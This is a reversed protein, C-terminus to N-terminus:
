YVLFDYCLYNSIEIYMCRFKGKNENDSTSQHNKEDAQVEEGQKEAGQDDVHGTEENVEEFSEIEKVGNDLFFM